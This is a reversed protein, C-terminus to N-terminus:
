SRRTKLEKIVADAIRIADAAIIDERRIGSANKGFIAALEWEPMKDRALGGAIAHGAYWQRLTMGDQAYHADGDSRAFAPGGDDIERM